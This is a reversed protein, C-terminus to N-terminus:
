SHDSSASIEGIAFGGSRSTLTECNAAFLMRASDRPRVPRERNVASHKEQAILKLVCCASHIDM